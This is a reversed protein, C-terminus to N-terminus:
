HAGFKWNYLVAVYWDSGSRRRLDSQLAATGAVEDGVHLADLDQFWTTVVGASLSVGGLKTFRLGVGAALSPTQAGTGVGLQAMPYVLTSAEWRWVLNLFVAAGGDLAQTGADAVVTKGETAETGYSPIELPSYFFGAGIEPVLAQFRRLRLTSSVTWEETFAVQDPELRVGTVNVTLSRGKEDSPIYHDFILSPGEWMQAKDFVGLAADLKSLSRRIEALAAVTAPYTTALAFTVATARALEAHCLLAQSRTMAEDSGPQDAPSGASAQGEVPARGLAALGAEAAKLRTLRDDAENMWGKIAARAKGLREQGAGQQLGALETLIDSRWREPGPTSYQDLQGLAKLLDETPGHCTEVVAKNKNDGPSGAVSISSGSPPATLMSKADSVAKAQAGGTEAFKKLAGLFEKMALFGQDDFEESETSIRMRLPNFDELLLEIEDSALFCRQAGLQRAITGKDTRYRLFFDSPASGTDDISIAVRDDVRTGGLSELTGDQAGALCAGCLSLWLVMTTRLVRM